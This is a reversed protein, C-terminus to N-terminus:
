VAAGTAPAAGCLCHKSGPSSGGAVGRNPPVRGSVELM